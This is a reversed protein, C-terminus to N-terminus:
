SEIIKELGDIASECLNIIAKCKVDMFENHEKVLDKKNTLPVAVISFFINIKNNAIRTQQRINSLEKLLNAEKSLITYSSSIVSEIINSEFTVLSYTESIDKGDVILWASANDKIAQLETLLLNLKLRKEYYNLFSNRIEEIPMGENGKNTRKTFKWGNESNGVAHPARDSKPIYVIHLVKNDMLAIPPNLFDWYVSPRCNKPFNGFHEPFDISSDIGIIRQSPTMTTDDKVGFVIFGGDSNAFSNCTKQLREKSKKDQSNPLKEKYDFSIPEFLGKSLMEVVVDYSWDSLENPIM